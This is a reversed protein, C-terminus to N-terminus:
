SAGAAIREKARTALLSQTKFSEPTLGLDLIGARALRSRRAAGAGRGREAAHGRQEVARPLVAEGEAAVHPLLSGGARRGEAGGSARDDRMQRARSITAAMAFLEMVIDVCRFLFGQKREMKAQYVAM